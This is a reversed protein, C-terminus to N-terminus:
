SFHSDFSCTKGQRYSDGQADFVFQNRSRAGLRDVFLKLHYLVIVFVFGMLDYKFPNFMQPSNAINDMFLKM